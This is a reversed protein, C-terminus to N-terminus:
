PLGVGPFNVRLTEIRGSRLARSKEREHIVQCSLVFLTRRDPGGLMCAVTQNETAIRHTVEGGERIRLVERSRPSAVWLAGEVDMCIGDPVAGDLKAWLRRNSLSGDAAVDFATLRAGFTEGVVLTKGDPAIVSGNPFLLNEAVTRAEGEPTVLILVTPKAEARAPLDFGFNGVYARGNSDVVMDNCHFPALASLDAAVTLGGPDLRLLKRDTMSVVLLRGDPLWGLGSPQGPVEVVTRVRGDLGVRMVKQATMDSFWLEDAHWRPAEPFALGDLLVSETKLAIIM